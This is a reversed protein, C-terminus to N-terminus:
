GLAADIATRLTADGPRVTPAFRRLVAGDAGVLFKAFSWEIHPGDGVLHRYLASRGAGNVDQRTLLPFDVGHTTSCLTRIEEATGPEQAGFQNCPVGVVLLGADARERQLAVLGDYQPTSGCRSAVDAFLVARAELAGEALPQGDLDELQLADYGTSM